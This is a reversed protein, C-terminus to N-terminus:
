AKFRVEKIKGNLSVIKFVTGRTTDLLERITTVLLSILKPFEIDM